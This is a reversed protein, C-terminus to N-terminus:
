SRSDKPKKERAFLALLLVFAGLILASVLASRDDEWRFLFPAACTAAALLSTVVGAEERELSLLGLLLLVSAYYCTLDALVFVLGAGAAAAAWAPRKRLAFAVAALSAAGLLMRFPRSDDLAARRSDKWTVLPERGPNKLLTVERTSPRWTVLTGLGVNNTLATALHKRSNDAFEAWVTWRVTSFGGSALLSLPIAVLVSLLAGQAVLLEERVTSRNREKAWRWAAAAGLALLLAGPFLRLLASCALASGALRPRGLRLLAVGAMAAALWDM